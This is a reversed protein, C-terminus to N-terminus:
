LGRQRVVQWARPWHQSQAAGSAGPEAHPPCAGQVAAAARPWKCLRPKFPTMIPLTNLAFEVLPLHRDWDALDPSVYHRIAAEVPENTREVLGNTEAHYATSIRLAVGAETCMARFFENNWQTGRDSIIHVPFGYHRFIESMFLQAFGEADLEPLGARGRQWWQRSAVM